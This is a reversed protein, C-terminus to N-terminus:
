DKGESWKKVKMPKVELPVDLEDEFPREMHNKVIEMAQETYDKRSEIVLEDHVQLIIHADLQKNKFEQSIWVMAMKLVDSASGQIISNVAQRKVRALQGRKYKYVEESDTPLIQLAPIEPFRRKRGIITIVHHDANEPNVVRNGVRTVWDDVGPFTDFYDYKFQKAEAPTVKLAEAIANIGQGYSISFNM